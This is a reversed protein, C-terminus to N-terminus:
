AIQEDSLQDLATEIAMEITGAASIDLERGRVTLGLLLRRRDRADVRRHLLGRSELRQLIGTLTSPHLHLLTALKGAPLGPFRGVIRLVLRQPGTLGLRQEMRKSTKQMAHDVGWILRLFDLVPGLEPLSDGDPAAPDVGEM